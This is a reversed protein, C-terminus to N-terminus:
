KAKGGHITMYLAHGLVFPINEKACLDSLWYWAFMCEVAVVIDERYPEIIQLFEDPGSDINKQKVIAGEKDIICVYMTRAHLDIGCYYKHQKVYFKM